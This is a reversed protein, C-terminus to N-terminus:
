IYNARGIAATGPVQRGARDLRRAPCDPSLGTWGRAGARSGLQQRRLTALVAGDAHKVSRGRHDHAATRQGRARRLAHRPCAAKRGHRECTGAGRELCQRQHEYAGLTPAQPAVAATGACCGPHAQACWTGLGEQALQCLASPAAPAGQLACTLATSKTETLSSHGHAKTHPSRSLAPCSEQTTQTGRQRGPRACGAQRASCELQDVNTKRLRMKRARHVRDGTPPKTKAASQRQGAESAAEQAVCHEGCGGCRTRQPISINQLVKQSCM